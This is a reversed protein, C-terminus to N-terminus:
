WGSTITAREPLGDLWDVSPFSLSPPDTFPLEFPDGVPVVGGLEAPESSLALARLFSRSSALLRNYSPRPSPRGTGDGLNLTWATGNARLVLRGVKVVVRAVGLGLPIFAATFINWDVAGGV